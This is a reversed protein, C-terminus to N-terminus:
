YLRLEDDADLGWMLHVLKEAVEGEGEGKKQIASVDFKDLHKMFDHKMCVGLRTKRECKLFALMKQLKKPMPSKDLPLYQTFEECYDLAAILDAKVGGDLAEFLVSTRLEERLFDYNVDFDEELYNLKKLVCTINGIKAKVKAVMKEVVPADYVVERKQRQLFPFNFGQPREQPSLFVLVPQNVYEGRKEEESDHDGHKPLFTEEAECAKEAEFVHNRWGYYLDEGLCSTMAKSFGYKKAFDGGLVGCVATLLILQRLM